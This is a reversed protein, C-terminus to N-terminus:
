QIRAVYEKLERNEQSLKGYSQKASLLVKKADAIQKDRSTKKEGSNDLLMITFSTLDSFTKTIFPFCLHNTNKIEKHDKFPVNVWISDGKIDKWNPIKDLDTEAILNFLKYDLIAKKARSIKISTIIVRSTDNTVSAPFLLGLPTIKYTVNKYKTLTNIIRDDNIKVLIRNLGGAVDFDQQPIM